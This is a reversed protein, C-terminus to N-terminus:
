WFCTVTLRVGRGFHPPPLFVLSPHLVRPSSSSAAQPQLRTHFGWHGCSSTFFSSPNASILPALLFSRVSQLARRATRVSSGEAMPSNRPEALVFIIMVLYFFVHKTKYISLIFSVESILSRKEGFSVSVEM